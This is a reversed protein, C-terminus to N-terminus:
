FSRSRSTRPRRHAPEPNQFLTFLALLLLVIIVWLAFNRLNANMGIDKLSPAPRRARSMYTGVLCNLHGRRRPPKVAQDLTPVACGAALPVAAAFRGIKGRRPGDAGAQRARRKTLAQRRPRSRRAPAAEVSIQEGAVRSWPAPWPAASRRRKGADPGSCVVAALLAELKGLEVPGETAASAMARGLLRLAIEAPLDAFRAAPLTSRRGAGAM